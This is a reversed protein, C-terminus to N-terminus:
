ADITNKIYNVKSVMQGKQSGDPGFVYVTNTKTGVSLFVLLRDLQQQISQIRCTSFEIEQMKVKAAKINGLRVIKVETLPTGLNMKTELQAGHGGNPILLVLDSHKLTASSNLTNSIDGTTLRSSEGYWGFLQCHDDFGDVESSVLDEIKIMWEPSKVSRDDSSEVDTTAIKIRSRGPIETITYNQAM